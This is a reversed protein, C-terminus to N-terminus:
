RGLQVSVRPTPVDSADGNAEVKMVNRTTLRFPLQDSRRKELHQLEVRTFGSHRVSSDREPVSSDREPCPMYSPGKFKVHGIARGSGNHGSGQASSRASPPSSMSRKSATEALRDCEAMPSLMWRRVAFSRCSHVEDKSWPEAAAVWRNVAIVDDLSLNRFVGARDDTAGVPHPELLPSPTAKFSLPPEPPCSARGRLRHRPHIAGTADPDM